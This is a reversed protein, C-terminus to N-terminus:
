SRKPNFLSCSKSELSYTKGISRCSCINYFTCVPNRDSCFLHVFFIQCGVRVDSNLFQLGERLKLPEETCANGTSLTAPFYMQWPLNMQYTEGIKREKPM